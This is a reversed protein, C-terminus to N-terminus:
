PKQGFAVDTDSTGTNLAYKSDASIEKVEDESSNRLGLQQAQEIIRRPDQYKLIDLKLKRNEDELIRIENDIKTIKTNIEYIQAYRWVIMGAVVVCVAVAFLYLLKEQVPLTKRHIVVRRKETIQPKNKAAIALNGRIYQAMM